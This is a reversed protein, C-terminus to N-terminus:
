GQQKFYTLRRRLDMPTVRIAEVSAVSFGQVIFGADFMRKLSDQIMDAQEQTMTVHYLHNELPPDDLRPDHYPALFQVVYDFRMESTTPM